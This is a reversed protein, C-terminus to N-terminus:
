PASGLSSFCCRHRVSTGAAIVLGATLSSSRTRRSSTITAAARDISCADIIGLDGAPQPAHAFGAQQLANVIAEARLLDVQGSAMKNGGRIVRNGGIEVLTVTKSDGPEFRVSTGASIDLRYGYAAGRDFELLPNTEM